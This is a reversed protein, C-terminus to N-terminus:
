FWTLLGTTQRLWTTDREKKREKKRGRKRKILHPQPLGRGEYKYYFHGHFLGLFSGATFLQIQTISLPRRKRHMGITIRM